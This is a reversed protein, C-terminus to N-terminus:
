IETDYTDIADRITTQQAMSIQRFFSLFSESAIRGTDVTVNSNTNTSNNIHENQSQACDFSETVNLVRLPPTPLKTNEQLNTNITNTPIEELQEKGWSGQGLKRAGTGQGM